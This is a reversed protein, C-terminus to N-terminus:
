TKTIKKLADYFDKYMEEQVSKELLDKDKYKLRSFDGHAVANRLEKVERYVKLFDKAEPIANFVTTTMTELKGHMMMNEAMAAVLKRVADEDPKSAKVHAMVIRTLFEETRRETTYTFWYVFNVANILKEDFKFARRVIEAGM